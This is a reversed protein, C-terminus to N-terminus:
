IHTANKVGLYLLTDNWAKMNAQADALAHHILNQDTAQDLYKNFMEMFNINRNNINNEKLLFIFRDYMLQTTIKKPLNHAYFHKWFIKLDGSYDSLFLLKDDPITAIWDFFKNKIESQPVGYNKHDLKTLINQKVFESCNRLRFNLNELYLQYNGCESYFGISILGLDAFNDFETDFFITKM